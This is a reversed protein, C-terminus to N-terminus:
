SASRDTALGGAVLDAWQPHKAIYGRVYPCQPVVTEDNARIDALAAEVLRAALGQGSFDEAVETHDVTLQDGDQSYEIVGIRQGEHILEFESARRNRVVRVNDM